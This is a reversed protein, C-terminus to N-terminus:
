RRWPPPVRRDVGAVRHEARGCTARLFEALRVAPVFRRGPADEVSQGRHEFASTCTVFHREGLNMGTWVTVHGPRPKGFYKGVQAQKV